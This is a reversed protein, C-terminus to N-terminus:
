VPVGEREREQFLIDFPKSLVHFFGVTRWLLTDWLEFQLWERIEIDMLFNYALAESLIISELM